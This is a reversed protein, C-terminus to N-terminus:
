KLIQALVISILIIVFAIAKKKQFKEKLFFVSAFYVLMPELSFILVTQIIGIQQYSFFYLIWAITTLANTLILYPIAKGPTSKINKMFLPLFVIAIAIDKILQLAIPNWVQLIIKSIPGGFPSIALTWILFPLTKKAIHFHHKKWHSWILASVAIVALVIIFPNREDAFFLSTFLILPAYGLLSITQMESLLDSKLARYFILNGVISLLISLFILFLYKFQFMEESLSPRFLFFIILTFFVMLPFSIGNYSKYSVKKIKLTIKDLTYSAAQLVASTAPIIFSM